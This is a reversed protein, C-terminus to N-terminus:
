GARYPSGPAHCKPLVKGFVDDASAQLTAHAYQDPFVPGTAFLMAGASGKSVAIDSGRLDAFTAANHPASTIVAPASAIPERAMRALTTSGISITPSHRTASAQM